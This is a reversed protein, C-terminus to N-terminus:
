ANGSLWLWPPQEYLRTGILRIPAAVSGAFSGHVKNPVFGGEHDSRHKLDIAAQTFHDVSRLLMLPAM